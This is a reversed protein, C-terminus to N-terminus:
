AELLKGLGKLLESTKELTLDELVVILQRQPEHNLHILDGVEPVQGDTCLLLHDISHLSDSVLLSFLQAFLALVGVFQEEDLLTNDLHGDLIVLASLALVEHDLAETTTGNDVVAGEENFVICVSVEDAPGGYRGEHEGRFLHILDLTLFNIQLLCLLYDFSLKEFGM